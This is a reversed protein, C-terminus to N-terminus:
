VSRRRSHQAGDRHTRSRRTRGATKGYPLQLRARAHGRCRATRGRPLGRRTSAATAADHARRQSLRFRRGPPRLHQRLSEDKPRWAVGGTALVKVPHTGMFWNVADINHIQQEVIQDGCLWVYSYWNRHQWEMDGWKANRAKQKIVPSGSGTPTPPWSRAWRATTSSRGQRWTDPHSRRQAGAMVTLKLQESKKAAAMFRRVGGPGHRVAERRIRAEEGGRGGRLADSPLRAAHVADRYRRRVRDAEQLRRLGTFRHEPMWRSGARCRPPRRKPSSACSATASWRSARETPWSSPERLKRLSSELQDEFLDAM